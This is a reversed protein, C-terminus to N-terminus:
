NISDNPFLINASERAVTLIGSVILTDNLIEYCKDLDNEEIIDKIAVFENIMRSNYTNVDVVKSFGDNTEIRFDSVSNLASNISIYGKNGQITSKVPANCDKAAILSAKFGDYSLSLIGSTDIGKEVNAMYEVFKPKGFLGVIFHINYVNLDMLAGGACKPDFAPAIDSNKFRDYRSSYQSFNCNVIKIEGLEKILSKIKEFNPLYKTTIAEFIFM